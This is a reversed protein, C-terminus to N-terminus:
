KYPDIRYTQDEDLNQHISLYNDYRSSSILGDKVAKVIACDPESIHQCNNFKCKESIKFMEPFLHGLEEKEIDVLGFGKIGPTDIIYGGFELAHMEAFTTTHQGKNHSLSVDSTKIKLGPQITNILSSKGVGSHGSFMCVKDKMLKKLKDIGTNKNVSTIVCQYGARQYIDILRDLDFDDNEDYLDSKNIVIVIPIHYAEATILFRDIFGTTVTPHKLTIVLFCLDINSAIIHAQKSLNVSKRIIYNKREKINTIVGKEDEDLKFEVHDGVAIPNTTKIGSIRFKGKIVCTYIKESSQDMIQYYKGTSQIVIGQKIVLCIYLQDKDILLCRVKYM